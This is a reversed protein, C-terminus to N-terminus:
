CEFLYALYEVYKIEYKNSQSRMYELIDELKNRKDSYTQYEFCDAVAVIKSQEIMKEGRLKHPYGSGDLCEHHQLIINKSVEPFKINQIVGVGLECHKEFIVHEEQSFTNRNEYHLNNPILMMGIDHFFAGLVIEQIEEETYKCQKAILAAIIAVNMSHSYYWPLTNIYTNLHIYWREAKKKYIIDQILPITAYYKEYFVEYKEGINHTPIVIKGWEDRYLNNKQINILEQIDIGYCKLKKLLHRNHDVRTGKSLILVGQENFIDEQIVLEKDM